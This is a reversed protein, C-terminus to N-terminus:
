FILTFFFSQGAAQPKPACNAKRKTKRKGWKGRHRASSKGRGAALKSEKAIKLPEQFAEAHSPCSTILKIVVLSPALSPLFVMQLNKKLGLARGRRGGVPTGPECLTGTEEPQGEENGWWGLFIPHLERGRDPHFIPHYIKICNVSFIRSLFAGFHKWVGAGQM